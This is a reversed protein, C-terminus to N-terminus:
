LTCLLFLILNSEVSLRTIILILGDTFRLFGCLNQKDLFFENCYATLLFKTHHRSLM